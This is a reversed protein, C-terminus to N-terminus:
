KHTHMLTSKNINMHMHIHTYTYIPMNTCINAQIDFAVFPQSSAVIDVDPTGGRLCHAFIIMIYQIHTHTHTHTHTSISIKILRKWM